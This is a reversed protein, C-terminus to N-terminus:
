GKVGATLAQPEFYISLTFAAEIHGDTDKLRKLKMDHIRTLRPLKELDLLFGYFGKFDGMMKMKIPLENYAPSQIHLDPRVSKSRLGRQTAVQWVEQLIVDVEKAAPLKAEFMDIAAALKEIEQGLDEIHRAVQLQELKAQKAANELRVQDIQKNSPAFVFFYAAVPLGLLVCLFVLERLGFRM